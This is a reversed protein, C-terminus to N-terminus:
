VRALDDEASMDVGGSIRVRAVLNTVFTASVAIRSQRETSKCGVEAHIFAAL